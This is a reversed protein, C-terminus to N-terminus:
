KSPAHTSKLTCACRYCLMAIYNKSIRISLLYYGSPRINVGCMGAEFCSDSIIPTPPPIVVCLMPWVCVFLVLLLVSPWRSDLRFFHNPSPPILVFKVIANNNFFCLLVCAVPKSEVFYPSYKDLPLREVLVKVMNYAM